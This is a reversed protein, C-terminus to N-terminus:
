ERVLADVFRAFLDAFRRRDDSSWDAIADGLWAARLSRVTDTLAQGEETLEIGTRRSDSPSAVRRVLGAEVAAAVVRSARSPDLALREAIVGISVPEGGQPSGEDVAELVPVHRVDRSAPLREALVRSFTRRAISRRIRVM